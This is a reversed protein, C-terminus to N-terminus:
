KNLIFQYGQMTKNATEDWTYNEEIFTSLAKTNSKNYEKLVASKIGKLDDPEVYSVYDEFYEKTTGDVGVVLNCGYYGAELSVLGPTDYWSPLVHVKASLYHKKLETSNIEDIFHVFEDAENKVLEYYKKQTPNVKGILFLDIGSGKMARVLNLQNKRPEIRGVCIINSRPTSIERSVDEDLDIANPVIVYNSLSINFEQELLSIEGQGNPLLIDSNEIIYRQTDQFGMKLVDKTGDHKENDFFYRYALRLREIDDYKLFKNLHRRLGIQGKKEFVESKWYITSLAIPVGQDVANKVFQYSEQPRLLNFVHVIDFTSLDIFPNNDITVQIKDPYKKELAEKTKLLQVTDGGKREFINYRTQFLVRIM